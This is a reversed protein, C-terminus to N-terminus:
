ILKLINPNMRQEDSLRDWLAWFGTNSIGLHSGNFWFSYFDVFGNEKYWISAPGDERHYKGRIHFGEAQIMGKWGYVIHAPGFDRHLNGHIQFEEIIISGLPDYMLKAPADDRHLLGDCDRWEKYIYGDIDKYEKYSMSAEALIKILYNNFSKIKQLDHM